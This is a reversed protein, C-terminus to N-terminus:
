DDSADNGRASRSKGTLWGITFSTRLAHIYRTRKDPTPRARMRTLGFIVLLAHGAGIMTFLAPGYASLLASSLYPSAIAGLAFFFMLAASLEVREEDSAFDHAHAAAVSYIPFTTMGFLAATLFVSMRGLDAAAITIASSAVAAISLWILVARRDFRDALWGMPFQALAGGLIFASLFTAIESAALGVEQGYVPGVM